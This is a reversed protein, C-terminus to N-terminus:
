LIFLVLDFGFHGPNVKLVCSRQSYTSLFELEFRVAPVSIRLRSCHLRLGFVHFVPLEWEPHIALHRVPLGQGLHTPLHSFGQELM